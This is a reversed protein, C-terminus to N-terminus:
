NTINDHIRNRKYRNKKSPEPKKEEITEQKLGKVENDPGAGIIPEHKENISVPRALKEVQTTAPTSTEATTMATPKYIEEAASKNKEATPKMESVSTKNEEAAPKNEETAPKTQEVVTPTSETAAATVASPGNEDTSVVVAPEPKENSLSKTVEVVVPQDAESADKKPPTINEQKSEETKVSDVSPKEEGTKIKNNEYKSNETKTKLGDEIKYIRLNSKASKPTIWSSIVTEYKEKWVIKQRLIEEEFHLVELLTPNRNSATNGFYKENFSQLIEFDALSNLARIGAHLM